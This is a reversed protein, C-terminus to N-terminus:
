LSAKLFQNLSQIRFFVGLGSSIDLVKRIMSKQNKVVPKLPLAPDGHCGIRYLTGEAPYNVPDFMYPSKPTIFPKNVPQHNSKPFDVFLSEPIFKPCFVELDM